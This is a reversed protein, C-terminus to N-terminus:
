HRKFFRWLNVHDNTFTAIGRSTIFYLISVVLIIIAAICTYSIIRGLIDEHSAKSPSVLKKQIEDM